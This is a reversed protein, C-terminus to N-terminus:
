LSSEFEWQRRRKRMFSRALDLAFFLQFILVFAYSKKLWNEAQGPNDLQYYINGSNDAVMVNQPMIQNLDLGKRFDEINKAINFLYFAEGFQVEDAYALKAAFAKNERVM